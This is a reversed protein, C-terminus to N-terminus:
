LPPLRRLSRPLGCQRIADECRREILEEPTFVRVPKGLMVLRNWEKGMSDWLDCRIRDLTAQDVDAGEPLRFPSIIEKNPM